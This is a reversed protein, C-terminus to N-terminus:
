AELCWQSEKPSGMTSCVHSKLGCVQLRGAERRGDLESEFYVTLM